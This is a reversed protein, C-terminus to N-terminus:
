DQKVRRSAVDARKRFDLPSSRLGSRSARRFNAVDSCHLSQAIEDFTLATVQLYRIPVQKRFESTLNRCSTHEKPVERRLTLTKTRLHNATSQLRMPRTLNSLRFRRVRGSVGTHLSMTELQQNCLTILEAFALENSLHPVTGLAAAPHVLPNERHGFRMPCGFIEPVSHANGPAGSAMRSL